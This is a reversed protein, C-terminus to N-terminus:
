KALAGSIAEAVEEPPVEGDIDVVYGQERFFELAPATLEAYQALRTRLTEESSDPRDEQAARAVMRRVVEDDSVELNLVVLNRGLWSVIECFHEAQGKTRGFGELVVGVYSERDLLASELLYDAFWDPLLKGKDYLERVRPSFPEHGDRIQKIRDGTSLRAWGFKESLIRAQTGKGSGPRGIILVTDINKREM